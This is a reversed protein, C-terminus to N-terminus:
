CAEAPLLLYDRQHSFATLRDVRSFQGDGIRFRVYRHATFLRDLEDVTASLVECLIEPRDERLLREAGRLVAPEAGECDLKLLDVPPGSHKSLFTDLRESPVREAGKQEFLGAVLSANTKAREDTPIFLSVDGDTDSVATRHIRIPLQPNLGVNRELQAFVPAFPEFADVRALPDRRIAAALLLTFYGINAGVEVVRRYGRDAARRTLLTPVGFEYGSYGWFYWTRDMDEDLALDALVSGGGPLPIRTLARAGVSSDEALFNHVRQRNTRSLLASQRLLCRAAFRSASKVGPLCAFSRFWKRALRHREDTVQIM